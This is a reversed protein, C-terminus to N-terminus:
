TAYFDANFQTNFIHNIIRQTWIHNWYSMINLFLNSKAWLRSRRNSFAGKPVNSISQLRTENYVIEKFLCNLQIVKIHHLSTIYMVEGTRLKGVLIIYNVRPKQPLTYVLHWFVFIHSFSRAFSYKRSPHTWTHLHHRM